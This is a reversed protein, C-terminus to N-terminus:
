NCYVTLVNFNDSYYSNNSDDFIRFTDRASLEVLNEYTGSASSGSISGVQWLLQDNKYIYAAAYNMTNVTCNIFFKTDQTATVIYTSTDYSLTSTSGNLFNVNKHYPTGPSM